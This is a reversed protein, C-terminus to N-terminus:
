KKEVEPKNAQRARRCQFGNRSLWKKFAMEQTAGGSKERHNEALFQRGKSLGEILHQIFMETLERDGRALNLQERFLQTMETVGYEPTAALKAQLAVQAKLTKDCKHWGAATGQL